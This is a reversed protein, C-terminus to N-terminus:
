RAVETDADESILAVLRALDNEVGDRTAAPGLIRAWLGSLPGSVTVTVEVRAGSDTPEAHHRFTLRAGPLMTTDAFTRGEVLETVEFRSTPGGKPKLKGRAGLRVPEDLRTWALDTSWQPHTDVDAWRAYLDAPTVPVDTRFQALTIM